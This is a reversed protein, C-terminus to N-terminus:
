NNKLNLDLLRKILTPRIGKDSLQHKQCLEKLKENSLLVLDPHELNLKNKM